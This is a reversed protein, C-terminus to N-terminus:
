SRNLVKPDPMLRALAWLEEEDGRAVEVWSDSPKRRLWVNWHDETVVSYPVKVLGSFRVLVWTTNAESM